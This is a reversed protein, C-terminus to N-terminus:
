EGGQLGTIRKMILDRWEAALKLYDRAEDYSQLSAHIELIGQINTNINKIQTIEKEWDINGAYPLLHSDNVAFNDHIHIYKVNTNRTPDFPCKRINAHGTDYCLALSDKSAIQLISDLHDEKQLNEICLCVNKSAAYESLKLLIHVKTPLYETGDTHIVIIPVNYNYADDIAKYISHRYYDGKETDCWIYHADDFSLHFSSIRIGQKYLLPPITEKKGTVAEYEDTWHLSVSKFGAKVLLDIREEPFSPYGFWYSVGLEM